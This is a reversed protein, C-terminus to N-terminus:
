GLVPVMLEQSEGGLYRRSAKAEIVEVALQRARTAVLANLMRILPFCTPKCGKSLPM